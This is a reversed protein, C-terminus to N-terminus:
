IYFISFVTHASYTTADIRVLELKACDIMKKSTKLTDFFSIIQELTGKFEGTIENMTCWSTDRETCLRCAGITVGAVTACDTIYALHQQMLHKRPQKQSYNQVSTKLDTITKALHALERESKHLVDVRQYMQDISRQLQDSKHVSPQYLLYWWGTVLVFATVLTGSYLHTTRMRVLQLYLGRAQSSFM